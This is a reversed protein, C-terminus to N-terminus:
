SSGGVETLSRAMRHEGIIGRTRRRKGVAPLKSVSTFRRCGIRCIVICGKARVAHFKYHSVTVSTHVTDGLHVIYCHRIDFGAEGSRSGSTYVSRYGKGIGACWVYGVAPVIAIASFVIGPHVGISCGSGVRHRQNNKVAGTIISDCM